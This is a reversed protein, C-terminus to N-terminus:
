TPTTIGRHHIGIEPSSRHNRAGCGALAACDADGVGRLGAAALSSQALRSRRSAQRLEFGLVARPARQHARMKHAAGRPTLVLGHLGDTPSLRRSLGVKPGRTLEREAAAESPPAGSPLGTGASVSAAPDSASVAGGRRALQDLLARNWLADVPSQLYGM